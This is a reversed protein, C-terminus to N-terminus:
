NVFFGLVPSMSLSLFLFFSLSSNSYLLDLHHMLSTRSLSLTPMLPLSFSFYIPLSLSLSLPFSLSLCFLSLSLSFPILSISIKILIPISKRIGHFSYFISLSLTLPLYRSGHPSNAMMKEKGATVGSERAFDPYVSM